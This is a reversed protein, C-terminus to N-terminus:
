VSLMGTPRSCSALGVVTCIMAESCLDTWGDRRRPKTKARKTPRKGSKLRAPAVGACPGSLLLLVTLLRGAHKHSTYSNQHESPQVPLLHYDRCNLAVPEGMWVEPSLNAGVFRQTHISRSHNKNLSLESLAHKPSVCAFKGATMITHCCSHRGTKAYGGACIIHVVCRSTTVIM